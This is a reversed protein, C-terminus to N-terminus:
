SAVDDAFRQAADMRGIADDITKRQEAIIVNPDPLRNEVVALEGEDLSGGWGSFLFDPERGTLEEYARAVALRMPWDSGSPLEGVDEGIKCTWVNKM